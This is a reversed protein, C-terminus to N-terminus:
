IFNSQQLQDKEVVKNFKPIISIGLDFVDLISMVQAYGNIEDESFKLDGLLNENKKNIAAKINEIDVNFFAQLQAIANIIEFNFNALEEKRINIVKNTSKVYVGTESSYKYFNSRMFNTDDIKEWDRYFHYKISNMVSQKDVNDPELGKNEKNVNEKDVIGGYLIITFDKYIKLCSEFVNEFMAITKKHDETKEKIERYKSLTTDILNIINRLNTIGYEIMYSEIDISDKKMNCIIKGNKIKTYDNISDDLINSISDLTTPINLHQGNDNYIHHIGLNLIYTKMEQLQGLNVTRPDLENRNITNDDRISLDVVDKKNLEDLVNVLFIKFFSKNTNVKINTKLNTKDKNKIAIKKQSNEDAFYLSCDVPDKFLQTGITDSTIKKFSM